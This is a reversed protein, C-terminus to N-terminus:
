IEMCQQISVVPVVCLWPVGEKHLFFLTGHGRGRWKNGTWASCCENCSPLGQMSRVHPLCTGVKHHAALFLLADVAESGAVQEADMRQLNMEYYYAAQEADGRREHAQALRHLAIGARLWGGTLSAEVGTMEGTPCM